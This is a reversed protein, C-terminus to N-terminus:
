SLLPHKKLLKIMVCKLDNDYIEGHWPSIDLFIDGNDEWLDIRVDLIYM